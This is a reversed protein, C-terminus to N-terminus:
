FGTSIRVIINRGPDDAFEKYRSLFSRYQTDGINHLVLDFRFQRSGIRHEAGAEFNLLTYADTGEPMDDPSVRHKTATYEVEGGVHGHEFGALARDAHLETELGFRAPPISPLPDGTDDNEGRVFDTRARLTVVSSPRLEGALEGGTLVATSQVYRFVRLGQQTGGTPVLYIFDDIRNRFAAVEASALRGEVRVSGDINLSTEPDLAPDGLEFRAESLKPGNTFLEFLTPGRWARGVNVALALSSLPRFVVGADGSVATYNRSQDSLSLQTNADAELRRGDLRAGGLLTWRGLNAQELAFVGGGVTSADPVVALKGRSDNQQFMGSVGISGSLRENAHHVLVDASLTNLLLNFVETEVKPGGPQTLDDSLEAINHRQAQAKTEVRLGRVLFNSTYQLREDNLKREPGGEEGEDTGPPPGNAELLKFEGGNHVFRLGWSGNGTHSGFAAEGNVAGLGTNELKGSPTHFDEAVRGTVFARWGFRRAAGELRLATGIETNNSAAFLEVGSTTFSRGGTADPIEAPIANVVGGIADSGYLVSAPGRILEVRQAMRADISPGDEDSWSYDELRSGDDLVLVRAGVLGRIMPKGIHVGTSLNRMGPAREIMRAISVSEDRRLAEPGLQTVPLPSTLASSPTHTATVNVADLRATEEELKISLDAPAHTRRLTAPAFGLRRATITYDGTPVDAFTFTGDKRTIAGRNLELISVRAGAVPTGDPAVVRGTISDSAAAALALAALLPTLM